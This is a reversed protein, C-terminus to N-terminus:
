GVAVGTPKAAPPTIGLIRNFTGDYKFVGVGNVGYCVDGFDCFYTDQDATTTFDTATNSLLATGAWPTTEAIKYWKTNWAVIFEKSSTSYYYRHMGTIGHAAGISTTNYKSYGKRKELQGYENFHMNYVGEPKRPLDTLKLESPSLNDLIRLIRKQAM